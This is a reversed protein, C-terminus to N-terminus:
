NKLVRYFAQPIDSLLEIRERSVPHTLEVYSCHLAQRDIYELSGGYLDDGALPHGISSMHCRIQHTRGTELRLELMTHSKGIIVPKYHTVARLGGPSVARKIKSGEALAIPSDVTGESEIIGECVATYKKSVTPQVLAYTLRDKVIIVCGSTNRDLRNLARFTYDEVLKKQYYSVINALTDAQHVKVPHVPMFPPKDVVLLYGDEYLISLEGEVPEIDNHEEPLSLIIEDGAIVTDVTRLLEGRRTIGGETYRLLTLSRATLGCYRRLFMGASMGGCEPPVTYKFM